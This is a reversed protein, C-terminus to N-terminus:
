NILSKIEELTKLIEKKAEGISIVEGNPTEVSLSHEKLNEILKYTM